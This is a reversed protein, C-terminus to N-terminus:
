PLSAFSLHSMKVDGTLLDVVQSTRLQALSPWDRASANNPLKERPRAPSHNEPIQGSSSDPPNAPPNSVQNEM